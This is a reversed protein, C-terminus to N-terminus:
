AAVRRQFRSAPRCEAIIASIAPPRNARRPDSSSGTASPEAGAEASNIRPLAPRQLPQYTEQKFYAQGALAQGDPRHVRRSADTYPGGAWGFPIIM